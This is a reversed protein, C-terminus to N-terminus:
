RRELSRQWVGPVLRSRPANLAILRCLPLGLGDKLDASRHLRGDRKDDVAIHGNIGLYTLYDLLIRAAKM